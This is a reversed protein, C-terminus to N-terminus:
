DEPGFFLSPLLRTNRSELLKDRGRKTLGCGGLFLGIEYQSKGPQMVMKPWPVSALMEAGTDGIPNGYIQLNQLRNSYADVLAKLGAATLGVQMLTLHRLHPFQAAAIAHAGVDGIPHGSLNLEELGRFWKSAALAEIGTGTMSPLTVPSESDNINRPLLLLNKIAPLNAVALRRAARDTFATDDLVLTAICNLHRSDAISEALSEGESATSANGGIGLTAVKGLVPSALLERMANPRIGGYGIGLGTLNSLTSSHALALAGEEGVDVGSISIRRLGAFRGDGALIRLVTEFRIRGDPRPRGLVAGPAMYEFDALNGMNPSSFFAILDREAPQNAWLKLVRVHKFFPLWSVTAFKDDGPGLTLETIPERVIAEWFDAQHVEGAGYFWSEIFGRTPFPINDRNRVWGYWQNEYQKFVQYLQEAWRSKEAGDAIGAFEIQTRIFEARKADDPKGTKALLDAYAVRPANDAPNALIERLLNKRARKNSDFLDFFWGFLNNM